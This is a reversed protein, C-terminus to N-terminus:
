AASGAGTTPSPTTGAPRGRRSGGGRSATAGSSRCSTRSGWIPSCRSTRRRPSARTPSPWAAPRPSGPRSLLDAFATVDTTGGSYRKYYAPEGGGAGVSFAYVLNLQPRFRAKSDYGPEALDSGRSTSLIRHGDFLLFRGDASLSERMYDCVTARDRGLGRLLASINSPSLSPRGLAELLASDELHAASRRLAPERVARTVALAYVERWRQPFLRALRERMDETLSWALTSAGVEVVDSV